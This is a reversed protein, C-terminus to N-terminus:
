NNGKSFIKSWNRGGTLSNINIGPDSPSVGELADAPPKTEGPQGAANIPETGEFVNVGGYADAGVAELLKQKTKKAKKLYMHRSESEQQVVKQKKVKNEKVLNTNLGRVVESVVGSLIGEELICEKICEKIIPKLVKKLESKKM